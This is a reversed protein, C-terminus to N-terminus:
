LSLGEPEDTEDPLVYVPREADRWWTFLAVAGISLASCLALALGPLGFAYGAVLDIGVLVASRRLMSYALEARAPTIVTSVRFTTM